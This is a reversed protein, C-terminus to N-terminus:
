QRPACSEATPEPSVRDAIYLGTLQLARDPGGENLIAIRSVQGDTELLSGPIVIEVSTSDRRVLDTNDVRCVALEDGTEDNLRFGLQDVVADDGFEM